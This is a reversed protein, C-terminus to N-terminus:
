NYTFLTVKELAERAWDNDVGRDLADLAQDICAELYDIYTQQKKITDAAQELTTSTNVWGFYKFADAKNQLEKVQNTYDYM